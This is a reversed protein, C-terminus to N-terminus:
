VGGESEDVPDATTDKGEPEPAEPPSHPTRVPIGLAVRDRSAAALMTRDEAVAAALREGTRLAPGNVIWFTARSDLWTQGRDAFSGAHFARERDLDLDLDVISHERPDRDANRDSEFKAIVHQAGRSKRKRARARERECGRDECYRRQGASDAPLSCGCNKCRRM